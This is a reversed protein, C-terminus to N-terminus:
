SHRAAVSCLHEVVHHVSTSPNGDARERRGELWAANVLGSDIRQILEQSVREDAKAYHPLHRATIRRMVDACDVFPADTQEFHLLVWIEWCPISVAERIPLRNRTRNALRGIEARAQAFSGHSDRDFVCFVCDYGASDSCKKIAYDVLQLPARGTTDPPLLVEANTLHLHSRLAKFYALETEGECVILTVARPPKNGQHRRFTGTPRLKSIYRRRAM